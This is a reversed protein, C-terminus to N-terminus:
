QSLVKKLSRALEPISAPGLPAADGGVRTSSTDATDAPLSRLLTQSSPSILGAPLVQAKIAADAQEPTVPVLIARTRGPAQMTPTGVTTAVGSSDTSAVAPVGGFSIPGEGFANATVLSLVLPVLCRGLAAPLELKQLM